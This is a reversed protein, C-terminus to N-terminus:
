DLYTPPTTSPYRLLGYAEPVLGPLLFADLFSLNQGIAAGGYVSGNM